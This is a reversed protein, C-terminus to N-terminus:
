QRRFDDLSNGWVGRDWEKLVLRQAEYRFLIREKGTFVTMFAGERAWPGRVTPKGSSTLTAGGLIDLELTAVRDDRLKAVYTGAPPLACSGRVLSGGRIACTREFSTTYGAVAIGGRPCDGRLLAWQECQRNGPFECVGLQDEFRLTGGRDVCNASARNDSEPGKSSSCAAVLLMGALLAISRM